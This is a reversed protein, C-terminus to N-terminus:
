TNSGSLEPETTGVSSSTAKEMDMFPDTVSLSLHPAFESVASLGHYYTTLTVPPGELQIVPVPTSFYIRIFHFVNELLETFYCSPYLSILLFNFCLNAQSFMM